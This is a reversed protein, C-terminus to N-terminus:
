YKKIGGLLTKLKETDQRQHYIDALYQYANLKVTKEDIPMLDFRPPKLKLAECLHEEAMQTEGLHHLVVGYYCINLLTRGYKDIHQELLSKAEGMEQQIILIEVMKIISQREIDSKNKRVRIKDVAMRYNRMAEFPQDTDKLHGALKFYLYPEDPYRKVAGNLLRINRNRKGKLAVPDTYGTHYIEIDRAQVVLGARNISASLNEHIPFTFFIDERRPIIRTQTFVQGGDGDIRRNLVRVAAAFEPKEFKMKKIEPISHPPVYDDADLWMLWAGAANKLSLNRSYSFDDVWESEIVKAGYGRAIEKTRDESGTDVVVLEDAFPKISELCVPLAKEENKVIMCVSLSSM